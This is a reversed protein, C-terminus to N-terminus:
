TWAGVTKLQSLGLTKRDLSRYVHILLESNDAITHLNNSSLISELFARYAHARQQRKWIQINSFNTDPLWTQIEGDTTTVHERALEIHKQKYKFCVTYLRM